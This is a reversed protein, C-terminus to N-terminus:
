ALVRGMASILIASNRRQGLPVEGMFVLTAQTEQQRSHIGMSIQPPQCASLM